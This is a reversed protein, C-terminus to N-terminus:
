WRLYQMGGIAKAVKDARRRMESNQGKPALEQVNVRVRLNYPSELEAVADLFAEASMEGLDTVLNDGAAVNAGPDPDRDRKLKQRERRAENKQDMCCACVATPEGKKEGRIRTRFVSVPKEVHCNTCAQTPEM